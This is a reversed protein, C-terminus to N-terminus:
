FKKLHPQLAAFLLAFINEETQKDDPIEQRLVKVASSFIIDLIHNFLWWTDTGYPFATEFIRMVKSYIMKREVSMDNTYCRSYYYRIFFSCQEKDDLAYQWVKEFLKRFRLKIDFTKDYVIPLFGLIADAFAKDIYTFTEKFLEEKGGFIRYIYVENLGANTALLKTTAHDIGVESITHIASNILAQRMNESKLLLVEM